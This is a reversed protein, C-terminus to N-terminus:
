EPCQPTAPTPCICDDNRRRIEGMVRNRQSGRVEQAIEGRRSDRLFDDRLIHLDMRSKGIGTPTSVREQSILPKLKEVDGGVHGDRVGIGGDVWEETESLICSCASNLGEEDM